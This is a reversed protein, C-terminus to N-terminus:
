FYENELKIKQKVRENIEYATGRLDNLSSLKNSIDALHAVILFLFFNAIGCGVVLILNTTELVSNIFDGM